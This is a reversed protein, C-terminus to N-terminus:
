LDPNAKGTNLMELDRRVMEDFGAQTGPKSFWEHKSVRLSHTNGTYLHGRSDGGSANIRASLDENWAPISYYDQDSFHLLLPETLYQEFDFAGIERMAAQIRPDHEVVTRGSEETRIEFRAGDIDAVNANIADYMESFKSRLAEAVTGVKWNDAQWTWEPSDQDVTGIWDPPWAFVFDQNISGDQGTASGTWTGDGSMFAQLTTAMPGYIGAQAFRTGFCGSWISGSFVANRLQSDEGSVALVALAADGGQSHGNVHIKGLDVHPSGAGEIGWAAWDIDELTQIGDILNLVDIAYFMPSLYSGNDWTQMFEMGEAPIDNVTGHGRWGPTLVLYGADVFADIYDSYHSDPQYGFDFAPADEQGVWGHVFIMVPYGEDPPPTSPMDVRSYIRLGDSPYSAMYTQYEPTGDESYSQRYAAGAPTTDLRAEIELVSGYTRKRLTEISIDSLSELQPDAWKEYHPPKQENCAPLAFLLCISIASLYFPNKGPNIQM